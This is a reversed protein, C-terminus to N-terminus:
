AHGGYSFEVMQKTSNTVTDAHGDHRVLPLIFERLDDRRCEDDVQAHCELDLALITGIRSRIRPVSTNWSIPSAPAGSQIKAHGFGTTEVNQIM